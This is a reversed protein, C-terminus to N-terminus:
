RRILERSSKGYRWVAYEEMTAFRYGKAKLGRIVAPLIRWTTNHTDHMLVVMGRGNARSVTREYIRHMKAIFDPNTEDVRKGTRYWEGEAWNWSDSSDYEKTWLAVVGTEALIKGIRIKESQPTNRYWPYGLPPRLITMVPADKGMVEELLRQNRAFEEKIEDPTLRNLIRHDATHNAIAHGERKMRILTKSYKRFKRNGKKSRDNWYASIFFTV